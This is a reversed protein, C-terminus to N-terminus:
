EVAEIFQPNNTYLTGGGPFTLKGRYSWLGLQDIDGSITTYAIIGDTGDTLFAAVKEVETGDPKVLIIAWGTATSIDDVQNLTEFEVQLSVAVDGLVTKNM